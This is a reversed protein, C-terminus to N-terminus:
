KLLEGNIIFAIHEFFLQAFTKMNLNNIYFSYDNLSNLILNNAIFMQM